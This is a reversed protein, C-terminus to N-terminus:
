PRITATATRIASLLLDTSGHKTCYASAGAEIMRDAQDQKDHMSLGIIRIHPLESSIIRTAEIGNMKPMSIDMLIVDPQFERAKEVAEKGDVAEAIVQFDSHLNLM